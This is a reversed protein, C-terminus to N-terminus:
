RGALTALREPGAVFSTCRGGADVELVLNPLAAVTDSRRGPMAVRRQNQAAQNLTSVILAALTELLRFNTDPDPYDKDTSCFAVFGSPYGENRLPVTILTGGGEPLLARGISGDQEDGMVRHIVPGTLHDHAVIDASISQSAQPSTPESVASCFHTRKFYGNGTDQFVSATEVQIERCAWRLIRRVSADQDVAEGKLLDLMIEVLQVKAQM